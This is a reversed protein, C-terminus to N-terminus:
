LFVHANVYPGVVRVISKEYERVICQSDNHVCVTKSVQTNESSPDLSRVVKLSSESDEVNVISSSLLFRFEFKRSTKSFHKAEISCM